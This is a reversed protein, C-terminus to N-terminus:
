LDSADGGGVARPRLVLMENQELAYDDVKAQDDLLTNDAKFLALGQRDSTIKFASMARNRVAIVQENGTITLPKVEGGYNVQVTLKTSTQM